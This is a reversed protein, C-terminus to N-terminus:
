HFRRVDALEKEKAAPTALVALMADWLSKIDAECEKDLEWGAKGTQAARAFEIRKAITIIPHHARAALFQRATEVLPIKGPPKARASKKGKSPKESKPPKEYETQTLVFLTKRLKGEEEVINTVDEQARLDIPNPRTPLVVLDAAAVADRIIPFVSGPTDIFLFEKDYGVSSLLAVSESIPRTLNSALRPNILENRLTWLEKLSKQPDLDAILVSREARNAAYTAVNHVLTTKGVGGKSAAFVVVKM